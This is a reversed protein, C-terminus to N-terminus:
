LYLYGQLHVGANWVRTVIGDVAGTRVFEPFSFGAEVDFLPGDDGPVTGGVAAGLPVFTLDDVETFDAIGFGTQVGIWFPDAIQFAVQAPIGPELNVPTTTSQFLGARGDTAISVAAGTDIRVLEALHIRIPVAPTFVAEETSWHFRLRAGLEFPGDLFDGTIAAWGGYTFDPTLVSAFPHAEVELEDLIGFRAGLGLFLWPDASRGVGPRTRFVNFRAAPALTMAPLAIPREVYPVPQRPGPQEDAHGATPWALMGVALGLGLAWAANSRSRDPHTSM